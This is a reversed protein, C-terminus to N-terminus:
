HGRRAYPSMAWRRPLRSPPSIRDINSRGDAFARGRIQRYQSWIKDSEPRGGGLAWGLMPRCRPWIDGKGAHGSALARRPRPSKTVQDRRGRRPRRRPGALLAPSEASPDERKLPATQSPARAFSAINGVSRTPNPAATQSPRWPHPRFQARIDDMQPRINTLARWTQRGNRGWIRDM